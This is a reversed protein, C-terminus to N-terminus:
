EHVAVEKNGMKQYKNSLMLYIRETVMGRIFIVVLGVLFYRVALDGLPLNLKQIGAAIGMYVFLEGANANPFFGLVPHCFSIAADFFPVKYKEEVFRGFTYAMPNGVCIMAIVPLFLYRCLRNGTIRMCFREVRDEGILKIIANVATMLCVVTPIITTVWGLFTQGGTSFLKMFGNALNSIVQM